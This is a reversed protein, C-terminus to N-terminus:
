DEDEEDQDEIERTDVYYNEHDLNINMGAAVKQGERVSSVHVEKVSKDTSKKRIHIKM